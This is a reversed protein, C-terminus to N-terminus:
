FVVTAVETEIVLTITREPETRELASKAKAVITEEQTTPVLPLNSPQSVTQEIQQKSPLVVRRIKSPPNLDEIAVFQQDVELSISSSMAGGVLARVSTAKNKQKHLWAEERLKKEAAEKKAKRLPSPTSDRSPEAPAKRVKKKGKCKYEPDEDNDSTEAEAQTEQQVQPFPERIM